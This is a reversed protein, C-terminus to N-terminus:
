LMNPSTELLLIEFLLFLTPVVSPTDTRGILVKQRIKDPDDTRGLTPRFFRYPSEPEVPPLWRDSRHGDGTQGTVGSTLGHPWLLLFWRKGGKRREGRDNVERCGWVTSCRGERKEGEGREFDM